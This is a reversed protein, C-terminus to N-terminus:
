PHFPLRFPDPGQLRFDGLPTWPCDLHQDPAFVVSVEPIIHHAETFKRYTMQKDCYVMGPTINHHSM